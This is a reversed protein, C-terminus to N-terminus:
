QDQRLHTQTSDVSPVAQSALRTLRDRNSKLEYGHLVSTVAASDIRAQGQCLGLEEIFLTDPNHGTLHTWPALQVEADRIASKRTRRDAETVILKAGEGADQFGAHACRHRFWCLSSKVLGHSLVSILWGWGFENYFIM